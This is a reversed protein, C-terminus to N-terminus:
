CCSPYGVFRRPYNVIAAAPYLSPPISPSLLVPTLYLLAALLSRSGRCALRVSSHFPNAICPSHRVSGHYVVAGAPCVSQSVPPPYCCPHLM